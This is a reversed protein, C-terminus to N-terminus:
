DDYVWGMGGGISAQLIVFPLEIAAVHHQHHVHFSLAHYSEFAHSCRGCYYGPEYGYDHVPYGYYNNKVVYKNGHGGHGCGHHHRHGHGHGGHRGHHGHGGHGGHGGHHKSHWGRGHHHRYGDDDDDDAAAPLAPLLLASALAIPLAFRSRLSM